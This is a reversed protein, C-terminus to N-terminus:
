RWSMSTALSSFCDQVSAPATTSAAGPRSRTCTISMPVSGSAGRLTTVSGSALVIAPRRGVKRDRGVLLECEDGVREVHDFLVAHAALHRVVPQEHDVEGGRGRLQDVREGDAPLGRAQRDVARPVSASTALRASLETLTSRMASRFTVSISVTAIPSDTECTRKVGSPRRASALLNGFWLTAISSISPSFTVYL